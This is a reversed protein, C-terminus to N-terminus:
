FPEMQGFTYKSIDPKSSYGVWRKGYEVFLEDFQKLGSVSLTPINGAPINRSRMVTPYVIVFYIICMLSLYIGILIFTLQNIKKM